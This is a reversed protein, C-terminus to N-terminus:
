TETEKGFKEIEPYMPSMELTSPASPLNSTSGLNLRRCLEDLIEGFVMLNMNQGLLHLLLFDGVQTKRILSSVGAPTGFRFRRKLITERTSPLMVVAMSYALALGSLVSLMIFWFWLFIYIKENLINLALVCLADHSQISGTPGFKHFTCKTIRPFVAIMPDTRNEQNMNSFNIVESGYTLFAGGLFLDVFFINMVVNAFNLTECFFYGFAYTNHMHMTETVYQVLRNQRATREEKAGVLAGRMGDSVMRIKGEEWNKWIWHPIYFLVGQFFLMFPVWQYYSHYRKEELHENGLGPHGVHELPKHLQGPLTYTYTIWCFTNIVHGPVGGDNICNIPDGILNNATVIICCVFLIASTIRYHARFVMNDIIAKDVLYRVKVFGAVASVMGFVAM